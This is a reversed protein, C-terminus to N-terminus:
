LPSHSMEGSKCYTYMKVGAYAIFMYTHTHKCVRIRTRDATKKDRHRHTHTHKVCEGEGQTLFIFNQKRLTPFIWLFCFTSLDDPGLQESCLQIPDTQGLYLSKLIALDPYHTSFPVAYTVVPQIAAHLWEVRLTNTQLHATQITQLWVKDSWCCFFWFALHM